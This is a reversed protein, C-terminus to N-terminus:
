RLSGPASAQITFETGNTLELDDRGQVYVSGAGAGAGIIAGIAAGKGGGAIAGIIAGVATGIAARQATTSGRSDRDQVSGENDVSVTEGSPTRVGEIMGAFQFTRGDRLRVRDFNFTIDSRGTVRGSRDLNSVHGEIVAGEWQAPSRVTMTFQDGERATKTSLDGNLFAVLRTGSPIVFDGSATQTTTTTNSWTDNYLDFQAVESTRDYHSVSIVPNMGLRENWIKRTVRLQQGNNIPEFTVDFDTQPYGTSAIVLQEGVLRASVQSVRGNPLQETRARGDAEINTRPALTSAVTVNLGNREIALRDPAQLRSTLDDIVQQRERFGLNRTARDALERANDSRSLNISYTGTLQNRATTHTPGYAPIGTNNWNWAVNYTTALQDLDRRLLQWDNEVRQNLRNRRMFDDIYAARRLVNEVDSNTARRSNFNQRLQDTAREFDAMFQNINDEARTGDWRSRDMARDISSKFTDARAEIRGLILAVQQDNVRTPVQVGVNAVPQNWNWTVNYARALQNLNARVVRWDGEARAGLRNRMMFSNILSAQRLVLEVDAAVSSRSNFRDRLTDISNEFNQVFANIDDEARTNQYRSRDLWDAMSGRFRDASNELNRVIVDVQRDTMRYPRTQAQVASGLGLSLLALTLVLSVARNIRSM